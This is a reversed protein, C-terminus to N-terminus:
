RILRLREGSTQTVQIVNRLEPVRDISYLIGDSSCNALVSSGTDNVDVVYIEIGDGKIANCVASTYNNM